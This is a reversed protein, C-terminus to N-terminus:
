TYLKGGILHPEAAKPYKQSQKTDIQMVGPEYQEKGPTQTQIINQIGSFFKSYL